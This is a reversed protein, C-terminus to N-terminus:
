PAIAPLAPIFFCDCEQSLLALHMWDTTGVPRLAADSLFSDRHCVDALSVATGHAHLLQATQMELVSRCSQQVPQASLFPASLNPKDDFGCTLEKAHATWHLQRGLVLEFGIRPNVSDPKMLFHPPHVYTLFANAADQLGQLSHTLRAVIFHRVDDTFPMCSAHM